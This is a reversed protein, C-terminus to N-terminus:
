GVLVASFFHFHCSKIFSLCFPSSTMQIASPHIFHFCSTFCPHMPNTHSIHQFLLFNQSPFFFPFKKKEKNQPHGLFLQFQSSLQLIKAASSVVINWACRCIDVCWICVFLSGSPYYLLVCDRFWFYHRYPRWKRTNQDM